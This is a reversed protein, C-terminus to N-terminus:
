RDSGLYTVAFGVAISGMSPLAIHLWSDAAAGIQNIQTTSVTNLTSM